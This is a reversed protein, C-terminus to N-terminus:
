QVDDADNSNQNHHFRALNERFQVYLIAEQMSFVIHPHRMYETSALIDRNSKLPGLGDISSSGDAKYMRLIQEDINQPPHLQVYMKLEMDHYAFSAALSAVEGCNDCNFLNIKEELFDTKAEPSIQVNLSSWLEVEQSHHCEPCEVTIWQKDSMINGGRIKWLM